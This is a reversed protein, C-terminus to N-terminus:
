TLNMFEHSILLPFVQYLKSPQKLAAKFVGLQLTIFAEWEIHYVWTVREQATHGQHHPNPWPCEAEQEIYNEWQISM